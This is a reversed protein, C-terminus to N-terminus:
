PAGWEEAFAAVYEVAAGIYESGQERELARVPGRVLGRRVLLGGLTRDAEEVARKLDEIVAELVVFPGEASVKVLAQVDLPLRVVVNEGQHGLEEDRIMVALVSTPDDAGLTPTEGLFITRGADTNFGNGVTIRELRRVLEAVVLRRKSM